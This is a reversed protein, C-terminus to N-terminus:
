PRSSEMVKVESVTSRRGSPTATSSSPEPTATDASRVGWGSRWCSGRSGGRCEKWTLYFRLPWDSGMQMGGTAGTGRKNCRSQALHAHLIFGLATLSRQTQENRTLLRKCLWAVRIHTETERTKTCNRTKFIAATQWTGVLGPRRVWKQCSRRPEWGLRRLPHPPCSRQWCSDHRGPM